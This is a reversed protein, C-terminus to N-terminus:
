PQATAGARSSACSHWKPVYDQYFQPAQGSDSVSNKHKGQEVHSVHGLHLRVSGSVNPFCGLEPLDGRICKGADGCCGKLVEQHGLRKAQM